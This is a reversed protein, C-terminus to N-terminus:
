RVFTGIVEEKELVSEVALAQVAPLPRAADSHLRAFDICIRLFDPIEPFISSGKGRRTQVRIHSRSTSASM